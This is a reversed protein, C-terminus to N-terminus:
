GDSYKQDDDLDLTGRYERAGPKLVVKTGEGPCDGGACHCCPTHPCHGFSPKPEPSTPPDIPVATNHREAWAKAARDTADAMSTSKEGYHRAFGAWNKAAHRGREEERAELAEIRQMLPRVYGEVYSGWRTTDPNELAEIRRALELYSEITAPAPPLGVDAGTLREVAGELERLRAVARELLGRLPFVVPTFTGAKTYPARVEIGGSKLVENIEEIIGM